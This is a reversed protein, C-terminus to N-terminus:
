DMESAKYLNTIKQLCTKSKNLAQGNHMDDTTPAPFQLLNRFVGLHSASCFFVRQNNLMARPFLLTSLYIMM